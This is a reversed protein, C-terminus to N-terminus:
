ESVFMEREVKTDALRNRRKSHVLGQLSFSRELFAEVTATVSFAQRVDDARESHAFIRELGTQCEM